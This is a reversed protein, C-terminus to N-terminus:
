FRLVEFFEGRFVPAVRSQYAGITASASAPKPPGSLQKSIIFFM